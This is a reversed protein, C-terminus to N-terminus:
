DQAVCGLFEIGVLVGQVYVANYYCTWGGGGGGSGWGWGGVDGGGAPGAGGGGPLINPPPPPPPPPPPANPRQDVWPAPPVKKEPPEPPRPPREGRAFQIVSTVVWWFTRSTVKAFQNANERFQPTAMIAAIGAAAAAYAWYALPIACPCTGSPDRVDVPNNFGYAYQNLGGAIGIPDESVFRGLQPDYYRARNYYLGTEPDLERGAFRVNNTVTFHYTSDAEGFPLYRYKAYIATMNNWPGVLGSVNGRGDAIYYLRVGSTAVSHPKDTGPYYSYHRKLTGSADYEAVVHSRDYIYYATGSAGAKRVRRGFLDYGFRVIEPVGQRVTRASDLEAASNWYLTQNFVSSDAIRFRRIVNGDLDYVLSDGNFRTLRNGLGVLASGDTRNGALDYTFIQQRLLQSRNDYCRAGFENLTDGTVCQSSATWREMGTLQDLSDHTYREFEWRSGMVMEVTKRVSDQAYSRGFENLSSSPQVSALDHGPRYAFTQTMIGHLGVSKLLGDTSYRLTDASAASPFTIKWARGLTDMDYRVRVFAQGDRWVDVAAYKSSADYFRRVRHAVGGRVAIQYTTDATWRVTDRGEASSDATWTSSYSRKAVRGDALTRRTLRGLADYLFTTQQGRRNTWAIIRGMRDRAYFDRRGTPDVRASDWGVANKEVAFVQGLADVVATLHVSDGYLYTVAAGLRSAMRTIRNLTDYATSDTRNAPDRSAILRGIGDYIAGLRRSGVRSSDTTFLGTSSHFYETLHGKSDRITLPRGRGDYTYRVAPSDTGFRASDLRFGSPDYFYREEAAGGGYQRTLRNTTTNWEYNVTSSTIQNTTSMLRPGSWQYTTHGTSNLAATIQGHTNRTYRAFEATPALVEKLAGFQDLLLKRTDGLPPIVTAIDASDPSTLVASESSRYYTVLRQLTGDATISPTSDTALKGAADYSSSWRSGRRDHRGLLRHFADYSALQFPKGGVADLIQVLNNQADVAFTTTRNGPVDRISALRNFGDYSFVIAKGVPDIISDLRESDKWVYRIRNGFVDDAYRLRGQDDLKLKTGDVMTRTYAVVADSRYASNTFILQDFDGNPPTYTCGTTNCSTRRWFQVSAAGDWASLSDGPGVKLRHVGVVSWGAGYPSMRENIVLLRIPATTEIMTSGWYGRAVVTYPYAGTSLISDEFQVALRHTGAGVSFFKETQGNTLTVYSGNPRQLRMSAQTPPGEGGMLTADIQVTHRSQVQGSSYLLTAARPADLTWYAPPSYTTVTNFCALACLGASQNHGNHSALDITISPPPPGSYSAAQDLVIFEDAVEGVYMTDTASVTVTTGQSITIDTHVVHNDVCGPEPGLYQGTGVVIGDVRVTGDTLFHGNPDTICFVVTVSLTGSPYTGSAPTIFIGQASAAIATLQLSFVVSIWTLAPM